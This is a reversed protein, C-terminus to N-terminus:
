PDNGWPMIHTIIYKIYSYMVGDNCIPNDHYQNCQELSPNNGQIYYIKNTVPFYGGPSGGGGGWGWGMEGMGGWGWGKGWGMVGYCERQQEYSHFM